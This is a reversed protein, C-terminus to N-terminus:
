TLNESSVVGSIDSDDRKQLLSKPPRMIKVLIKERILSEEKCPNVGEWLRKWSESEVQKRQRERWKDLFITNEGGMELLKMRENETREQLAEKKRRQEERERQQQQRLKSEESGGEMAHLAALRHEEWERERQLDSVCVSEAMERMAGEGKMLVAKVPRSNVRPAGRLACLAHNHIGGLSTHAQVPKLLAPSMEEKMVSQARWTRHKQVSSSRAPQSMLSSPRTMHIPAVRSSPLRASSSLPEAGPHHTAVSARIVSLPSRGSRAKTQLPSGDFFKPSSMGRM